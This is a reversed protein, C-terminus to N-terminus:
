EETTLIKKKMYLNFISSKLSIIAAMIVTVNLECVRQAGDCDVGLM